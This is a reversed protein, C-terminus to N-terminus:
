SSWARWYGTPNLVHGDALLTRGRTKKVLNVAPLSTCTNNSPNYFFFICGNLLEMKGLGMYGRKSSVAPKLKLILYCGRRTAELSSKSFVNKTKSGSRSQSTVAGLGPTYFITSNL